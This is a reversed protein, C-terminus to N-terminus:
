HKPTVDTVVALLWLWMALTVIIDMLGVGLEELQPKEWCCIFFNYNWEGFDKKNLGYVLEHESSCSLYSSKM